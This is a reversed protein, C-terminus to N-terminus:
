LLKMEILYKEAGGPLNQASAASEEGASTVRM